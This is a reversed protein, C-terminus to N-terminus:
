MYYKGRQRMGPLWSQIQIPRLEIGPGKAKAPPASDARPYGGEGVQLAEHEAAVNFVVTKKRCIKVKFM